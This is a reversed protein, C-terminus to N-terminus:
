GFVPSLPFVHHKQKRPTIILGPPGCQRQVVSRNYCIITQKCTENVILLSDTM